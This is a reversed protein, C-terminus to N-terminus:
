FGVAGAAGAIAGESHLSAAGISQDVAVGGVISLVM